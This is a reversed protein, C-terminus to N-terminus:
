DIEQSEELLLRYVGGLCTLMLFCWSLSSVYTVDLARLEVGKQLMTRFRESLSFPIKGSIFGSLFHNAWSITFISMVTMVINKKMMTLMKSPDMMAAMQGGGEEFKEYLVGEEKRCFIARRQKFASYPLFRYNMKWRNTRQLISNVKVDDKTNESSQLSQVLDNLLYKLLGSSLMLIILPIFVWDRIKTDLILEM